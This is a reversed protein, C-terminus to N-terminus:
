SNRILFPLATDILEDTIQFNAIAQLLCMMLCTDLSLYLNLITASKICSSQPFKCYRYCSLIEAKSAHM